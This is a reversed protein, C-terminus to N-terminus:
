ARARAAPAGRLRAPAREPGQSAGAPESRGGVGRRPERPLPPRASVECEAAPRRIGGECESTALPLQRQAGSPSPDKRRAAFGRGGSGHPAAPQLRTKLGERPSTPSLLRQGLLPCARSDRASTPPEPGPRAPGRARAVTFPRDAAPSDSSMGARPFAQAAPLSM